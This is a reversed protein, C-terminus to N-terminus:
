ETLQPEAEEPHTKEPRLMVLATFSDETESLDVTGDYRRVADLMILRGFGHRSGDEKSTSRLHGDRLVSEPPKSNEIRFFICGARQTVKLYIRRQAPELQLCAEIANDLVNSLLCVLDIDSIGVDREINGDVTFAIQNEQCRLYKDAILAGAVANDMRPPEAPRRSQQLSFEELYSEAHEYDGQQLLTQLVAIHGRIDHRIRRTEEDAALRAMFLDYQARKQSELQSVEQKLKGKELSDFIFKIVVGVCISYILLPLMVEGRSTLRDQGVRSFLLAGTAIYALLCIIGLVRETNYSVRAKRKLFVLVWIMGARMVLGLIEMLLFLVLEHGSSVIVNSYDPGPLLHSFLLTSLFVPDLMDRLTMWIMKEWFGGDFCRWLLFFSVVTTIAGFIMSFFLYRPIDGVQFTVPVFLLLTTVFLLAAAKKQDIRPRFLHMIAVTDYLAICTMSFLSAIYNLTNESM